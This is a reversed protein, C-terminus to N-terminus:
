MHDSWFRRIEASTKEALTRAQRRWIDDLIAGIFACMKPDHAITFDEFRPNMNLNMSTRLVLKWRDNEFLAFKAHSQSVRMADAGFALKIQNAAAPDRRSFSFDILWRTRRIQGAQYLEQLKLIENRAATWTSISFDCPGTIDLIAQLLHLMSFQGKTFGYIENKRTLGTVAQEATQKARLDRLERIASRHPRGIVTPATISEARVTQLTAGVLLPNQTTGLTRCPTLALAM